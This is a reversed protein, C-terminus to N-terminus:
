KPILRLSLMEIDRLTADVGDPRLGIFRVSGRELSNVTIASISLSRAAVPLATLGVNLMSASVELKTRETKDPMYRLAGRVALEDLAPLGDEGLELRGGGPFDIGTGGALGLEVDVGDFSLERLAFSSDGETKAEVRYDFLRAIRVLQREALALDRSGLPWAVLVKNMLPIDRELVLENGRVRFDLVADELASLSKELRHFNITGSDVALRFHHTARRSGLIPITADATVDVDIKGDLGDLASLDLSPREAAPTAGDSPALPRSALRAGSLHARPAFLRALRIVKGDLGVTQAEVTEAILTLEGAQVAIRRATIKDALVLWVGQGRRLRLGSLNVGHLVISLGGLHLEIREISAKQCVLALAKDGLALGPRDLSINRMVVPKELGEFTMALKDVNLERAGIQGSTGGARKIKIDVAARDFRAGEVVVEASATPWRVESLSLDEESTADVYYAARDTRYRGSVGSSPELVISRTLEGPGDLELRMGEAALKSVDLEM